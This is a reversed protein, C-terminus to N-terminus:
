GSWGQRRLLRTIQRGALDPEHRVAYSTFCLLRPGVIIVENARMLDRDWQLVGLHPFAM